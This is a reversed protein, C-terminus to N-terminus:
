KVQVKRTMDVNGNDDVVAMYLEDPINEIYPYDFEVRNEGGGGNYGQIDPFLVKGEGDVLTMQSVWDGVMDWVTYPFMIEGTSDDRPGIGNEEMFKALKQLDPNMRLTIYTMLPSYTVEDALIYVDEFQTGVQPRIETKVSAALDGPTYTFRIGCGEPPAIKHQGEWREPHESRIYYGKEVSKGIPLIIETPGNLTVNENDLRWNQTVIIEGNNTGPTRQEGSNNPMDMSVGNFWITDNWWDVGYQETLEYLNDAETFARDVDPLTFSYELFLQKGDYGCERIDIKVGNVTESHLNSQMIADANVPNSGTMFSYIDFVHWQTAALAGVTLIMLALVLIFGSTVKKKVIVEGEEAAEIRKALWPDAKMGSLRRDISERFQDANLKENM